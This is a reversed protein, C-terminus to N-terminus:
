GMILLGSTVSRYICFFKHGTQLFPHNAYTKEEAILLRSVM